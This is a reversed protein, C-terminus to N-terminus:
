KNYVKATLSIARTLFIEHHSKNRLYIYSYSLSTAREKQKRGRPTLLACMCFFLFFYTNVHAQACLLFFSSRARQRFADDSSARQSPTKAKEDNGHMCCSLFLSFFVFACLRAYFTYPDVKKKRTGKKEEEALLADLPSMKVIDM